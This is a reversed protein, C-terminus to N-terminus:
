QTFIRIFDNTTTFLAIAILLVFGIMTISVVLLQSRSIDGGIISVQPAFSNFGKYLSIIQATTTKQPLLLNVLAYLPSGGMAAIDSVNAAFIKKGLAFFFDDMSNNLKFDVDEVFSDTTLLLLDNKFKKPIKIGSSDDGIPLVVSSNSTIYPAIAKILDAESNPM